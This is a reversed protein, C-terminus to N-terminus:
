DKKKTAVTSAAGLWCVWTLATSIQMALLISPDIDKIFGDTNITATYTTLTAFIGMLTQPLMANPPAEHSMIEWAITIGEVLYSLVCLLLVPLNTIFVLPGLRLLAYAANETIFRRHTPALNAVLPFGKYGGLAWPFKDARQADSAKASLFPLVGIIVIDLIFGHVFWMVSCVIFSTPMTPPEPPPLAKKKGFAAALAVLMFFFQQRLAGRM